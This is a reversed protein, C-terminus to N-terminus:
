RFKIIKATKPKLVKDVVKLNDDQTKSKVKSPTKLFDLMLEFSNKKM